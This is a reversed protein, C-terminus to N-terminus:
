RQLITAFLLCSSLLKDIQWNWNLNIKKVIRCMAM